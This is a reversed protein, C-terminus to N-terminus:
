LIIASRGIYRITIIDQLGENTLVAKCSIEAPGAASNGLNELPPKDRGKTTLGLIAKM